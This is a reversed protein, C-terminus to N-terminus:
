AGGTMVVLPAHKIEHQIKSKPSTGRHRIAMNLPCRCASQMCIAHWLKAYSGYQLISGHHGTM